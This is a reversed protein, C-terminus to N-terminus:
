QSRWELNKQEINTARPNCRRADGHRTNRELAKRISRPRSFRRTWNKAPRMLQVQGSAIQRHYQANRFLARGARVPVTAIMCNLWTPKTTGGGSRSKRILRGGACVM